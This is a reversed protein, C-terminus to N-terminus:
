RRGKDARRRAHRNPRKIGDDVRGGMSLSAYMTSFDGLRRIGEMWLLSQVKKVHAALALDAPSPLGATDSECLDIGAIYFPHQDRAGPLGAMALRLSLPVDFAPSMLVLIPEQREVEVPEESVSVEDHEGLPIRM